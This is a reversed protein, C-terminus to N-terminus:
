VGLPFRIFLVSSSATVAANARAAHPWSLAGLLVEAVGFLAGGAALAGLAAGEVVGLAAGEVLEVPALVAGAAGLAAGAAGAAGAASSFFSNCFYGGGM